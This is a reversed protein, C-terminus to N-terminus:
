TPLDGPTAVILLVENLQPNTLDGSSAVHYRAKIWAGVIDEDRGATKVKAWLLKIQKDNIKTGGGTTAPGAGHGNTQVPEGGHAARRWYPAAPQVYQAQNPSDAVIGIEGNLGAGDVRRWAVSVSRDRAREIFVKVGLRARVGEAYTKSWLDMAMGLDKCCRMLANSKAGEIADGHSMGDGDSTGLWKQEGRAQGLYRGEAYLAYEVYVLKAEENYDITSLRRLAWGGPRFAANLRKRYGGHSMFVAGFTDPKIEIEDDDPAKLLATQQEETVPKVSAGAYISDQLGIDVIEGQGRTVKGIVDAIREADPEREVAVTGFEDAM